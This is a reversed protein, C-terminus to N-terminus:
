SAFCLDGDHLDCLAELTDEVLQSFISMRADPTHPRLHSLLSM